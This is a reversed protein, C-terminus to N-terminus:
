LTKIFWNIIREGIENTTHILKDWGHLRTDFLIRTEEEEEMAVVLSRFVGDYVDDALNRQSYGEGSWASELYVYGEVPELTKFRTLIQKGDIFVDLEDGNISFTLLRSGSDKIEMVSKSTKGDQEQLDVSFTLKEEGQAKEYINLGNDKLQILIYNELTEDARVYIGQSGLKNGDLQVSLKFDKFTESEKLRLLGRGKPMSTLTIQDKIFEAQGEIKDWMKAKEKDGTVFAVEQKTDDWLRMLLHNVSWYAQPQIRTLDYVVSERNNLSYGERNFHMKFLEHIWAKNVDSARDNTGYQGTNSHMLIYMNPVKGIEETYIKKVQEYDYSIRAKMKEYNEKPISYEDRIYDMLYHNYQRELEGSVKAFELSDLEGLYVENRDFVNIYELRYGNTGLEWFTNKELELLEEPMLFKMDKKEFKDAYTLMTGIYNYNEMIKQSFIATDRRGDEFILFLSKEPLVKGKQYYDIIDQQTITVYGSNKLAKLHEELRKTSILTEDGTRDVGFYSIAIFGKDGNMPVELGYPTYQEFTFLAMITIYVILLLAVGQFVSRVLKKIDKNTSFKYRKMRHNEEM